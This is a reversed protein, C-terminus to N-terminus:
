TGASHGTLKAPIRVSLYPQLGTLDLQGSGTAVVNSGQQTFTVTYPSAQSQPASLGALLLGAAGTLILKKM